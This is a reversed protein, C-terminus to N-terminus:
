QNPTQEPLTEEVKPQELVPSGVGEPQPKKMLTKWHKILTKLDLPAKDTDISNIYWKGEVQQAIFWGFKNEVAIIDAPVFKSNAKTYVKFGKIQKKKKM